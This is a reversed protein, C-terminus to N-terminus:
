NKINWIPDPKSVVLSETVDGTHAEVTQPKEVGNSTAIVLKRMPAGPKLDLRSLDVYYPALLYPVDIYYRKYKLDAVTAYGTIDDAGHVNPEAYPMSPMVSRLLTFTWKRAHNIESEKPVHDLSYGLRAIRDESSYTGPLYQPSTPAYNNVGRYYDRVAYMGGFNLRGKGIPAYSQNATVNYQKGHYVKMGGKEWQFVANDGTADTLTLLFEYSSGNPLKVPVGVVNIKKIGKVAEDVTAFNDLVYQVVFQLSVDKKDPSIGYELGDDLTLSASLGKENMGDGIGGNSAVVISGYKSVWKLDKPGQLPNAATRGAQGSRTLGAPLVWLVNNLGRDWDFNRGTLVNGNAGEYTFRTCADAIPSLGASAGVLLLLLLKAKKM